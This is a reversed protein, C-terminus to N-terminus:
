RAGLTDSVKQVSNLEDLGKAERDQSGQLYAEMLFSLMHLPIPAPAGLILKLANEKAAAAAALNSQISQGCVSGRRFIRPCTSPM